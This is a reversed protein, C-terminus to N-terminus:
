LLWTRQGPVRIVGRLPKSTDEGGILPNRDRITPNLVVATIIMWPDRGSGATLLPSTEGRLALM